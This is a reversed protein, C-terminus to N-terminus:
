KTNLELTKIEDLSSLDNAKIYRGSVTYLVGDIYLIREVNKETGYWYNGAMRYDEESLHTIRGRLEFGKELSIRYVYAGQFSFVGYPPLGDPSPSQGGKVLMLTVPFALLEKEKSFLLARHNYLLESDTGRDGIKEAFLEVPNAVDTVDFVAMKIGTYFAQTGTPWWAPNGGKVSLEVTDKGFGIVHNDDYVHLYNSYGPIKLAGLLRPARPDSVDLVFFPDVNKFTVVYARNQAFRVAYIREGPAIGELRGAIKLNEDLVFLNNKSIAEDTRWEYGSTTAVRLFGGSEDMSFQNLVRGPVTGCGAYSVKGGDLSFKYIVTDERPQPPLIGGGAGWIGGMIRVDHEQVAVYLNKASAYVVEGGGLYAGATAKEEPRELDFGAVLLYSPWICGPFCKIQPYDFFLPDTGGLASDSYFPRPDEVEGYPRCYVTRSSVLYVASGIKRSSVYYGDLEVERVKAPQSRDTLKYVVAKVAPRCYPPVVHPYYEKLGGGEFPGLPVRFTRQSTGVAVLWDGDVYIEQPEFSSGACDIVSVVSMEEPPYARAITIRGGKASYIYTGDTKVVDAEDVGEVQVNTRSYSGAGAAAEGTGKGGAAAQPFLGPGGSDRLVAGVPASSLLEKLNEYSGVSPLEGGRGLAPPLEGPRGLLVAQLAEDWGVDCGLAEAVSRAPVYLRGGDTFAAAGMDRAEAGVGFIPSGETFRVSVGDLWFEASRDAEDWTVSKPDAGLAHALQRVPLYARGEVLLAPASGSKAVGGLVYCDRGVFFVAGGAPLGAAPGARWCFCALVAAAWILVRRTWFTTKM